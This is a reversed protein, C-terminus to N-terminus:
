KRNIYYMRLSAIDLEAELSLIVSMRVNM